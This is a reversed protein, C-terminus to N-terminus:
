VGLTENIFGNIDDKTASGIRRGKEESNVFIALVPITKVGYEGALEMNDTVNVKLITIDDREKAIEDLFPLISKCPGCWSAWFDVLVPKESKKLLNELEAKNIDLINKM